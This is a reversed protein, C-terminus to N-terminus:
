DDPFQIASELILIKYKSFLGTKIWGLRSGNELKIGIYKIQEPPFAEFCDKMQQEQVNYFTDRSTEYQAIPITYGENKMTIIASAFINDESLQEGEDLPILKFTPTIRLISDNEEKRHCTYNLTQTILVAGDKLERTYSSENFFLTDITSYGFFQVDDHLTKVISRPHYGVESSGWITSEFQVDDTGDRDLDINFSSAENYEGIVLTDYSNVQMHSYDGTKIISSKPEQDEQCSFLFLVFATYPLIRKTM